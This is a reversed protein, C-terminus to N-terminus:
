TGSEQLHARMAALVTATQEIHPSHGCAPLIHTEIQPIAANWAEAYVAPLLKDEAGWMLLTRVRIRHLWKELNPNLWRPEWGLRAAQLRTRTIQAMEEETPVRAIIQEALAQDYFVNRIAEAPAWMFNDGPMVGKKRVGAPALLTLSAFASCDRVAMEAAIWGGMSHGVVHLKPFGLARIFELYYYAYDAINRLKPDEDSAGFAPHEPIIIEHEASLQEFLPLWGSFGNAGHLFLVPSGSGARLLRIKTDLVAQKTPEPPM